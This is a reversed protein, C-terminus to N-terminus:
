ISFVAKRLVFISNRKKKIRREEMNESRWVHMSLMKLLMGHKSVKTDALTEFESVQCYLLVNPM